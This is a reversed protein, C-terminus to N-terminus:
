IRNRFGKGLYKGQIRVRFRWIFDSRLVKVQTQGQIKVM